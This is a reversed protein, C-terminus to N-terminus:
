IKRWFWNAGSNLVCLVGNEPETSKENNGETRFFVPKGEAYVTLILIDDSLDPGDLAIVDIPRGSAPDVIPACVDDHSNKCLEDAQLQRGRRRPTLPASGAGGSRAPRDSVDNVSDSQATLDM